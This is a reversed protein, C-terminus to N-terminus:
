FLEFDTEANLFNWFEKWCCKKSIETLTCSRKAVFATGSEVLNPRLVIAMNLSNLVQIM